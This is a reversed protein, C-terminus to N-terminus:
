ELETLFKMIDVGDAYDTLTPSQCYGLPTCNIGPLAMQSGACQLQNQTLKISSVVDDIADYYEYHLSAIRSHLNKDERMILFGNTLFPENGLLYISENYDHNNKYKNHDAMWKYDYFAEFILDTNFGRPIFLKGVNRCGLGFYEFVDKGLLKLEESSESGSLVAVSTRNKRIVKPYNRFYYEFHLATTNTGTAIVADFDTLREVLTFYSSIESDIDNMLNVVLDLLAKDKSSAKIVSHHGCVFSCLLDQFGVLPINGAMVLGINRFEKSSLEYSKAWAILKDKQLFQQCIADISKRCNEPIFWQNEEYAKHIALEVIESDPDSLKDGLNSLLEIRENLNM